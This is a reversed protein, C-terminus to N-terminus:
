EWLLDTSSGYFAKRILSSASDPADDFEAKEEYDYIQNLYETDTAAEDWYINEWESYLYTTIKYHKNLNEHYSKVVLGRKKLEDAVFGKDANEEVYVIKCSYKKLKQLIFEWKDKINEQFCFGVGIIMKELRVRGMITLATYNNGSFGADIHGVIKSYKNNLFSDYKIDQFLKSEDRTHILEYNISFLQPTTLKRKEAIEKETLIKTSYVDFKLPTPCIKWGDDKHWPTGVFSIPKGPDIINTQLEMIMNETKVREAQSLRDKITIIDDCIIRDFHKGTIATDIGYANINGEPTQTNKFNYVLKNNRNVKLKPEFGHVKYFLLKIEPLMMINKITELVETADTFTKRIIAIRDNPKFLMWYISGIITVATTKYSGRHGQLSRFNNTLWIYKIWYSHLDFLKEKGALHGIIHPNNRIHSLTKDTFDMTILNFILNLILIVKM